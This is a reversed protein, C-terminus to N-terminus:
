RGTQPNASPQPIALSLFSEGERLMLGQDLLSQIWGEVTELAVEGGGTKHAVKQLQALPRIEDCALYLDRRPGDLVTLRQRAVPRQDWILLRGDKESYFLCSAAHVKRWEAIAASVPRSYSAVDRGDRYEFTFYYALRALVEPPFPYLHRYLPHPRVKEFGFASSQTFHPSFRDLRIRGALTPPSLHSLLPMLQTMDEYDAASEGPFGWILNWLPRVGLERCWKLLQVNQLARVGKRMLALVNSSLSEIGPQIETIGARSLLRVHHKKLNAKVEYFLEIPLRRRALEPLFSKFYSMDLINDVAQVPSEPYRRTLDELEDLAREASKSRFAMGAGNLGCFTCHQRQGWWCGRSTEFSLRPRAGDAIRSARFQAFFESYDPYPLEDMEAVGPANPPDAMAEPMPEQRSYVGTMGAVTGGALVREVLDPFVIEGEGSVVADVFAFQRMTELGMIGECNAGGLVVFIDPAAQKLRRALALSALQQQFVSTLGVIRPRHNLVEAACADLFGDVERCASLIEERAGPALPGSPGAAIVEDLVAAGGRDTGFVASSFIWEGLLSTESPDGNSIRQYVSGGILEAFALTFYFTEVSARDITSKLLGLAISPQLLLGFPMSILAVDTM